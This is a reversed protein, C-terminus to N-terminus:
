LQTIIKNTKKKELLLRCVLDYPSQLESTHEESRAFGYWPEAHRRQRAGSSSTEAGRREKGRMVRHPTTTNAPRGLTPLDVRKFARIPSCRAITEGLGWDVRRGTTPRNVRSSVCNMKVSEGPRSSGSYLSCSAIRAAASRPIASASAIAYRCGSASNGAGGSSCSALSSRSGLAGM